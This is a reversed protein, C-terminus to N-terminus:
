LAGVNVIKLEGLQKVVKAWAAPDTKTSIPASLDGYFALINVRLETPMENYHGELKDLLQAYARDSLRYRGPAPIEGVDLNENPLKLQGAQEASLLERYRDLTTNFSAMFLKEVAPTPTEFRFARFRGVRPLIRMVSALLRSRFGPQQYEKGWNKQYSARSLNYLFKQRTTGPADKMIEDKKMDWAVRTMAPITSSVSHRYSGIALSVNTFLDGMKIGYTDLFARELAPRAVKFGIFEHYSNSAYHGQAVQLVDFAFETRIHSLSDDAYTVQNGFEVRLKPYLLSVAPNTALRHGTNDAAYHALAGLSFAYENVDQSERILNLVFDGSRVYHLLDTFLKSGFPYYGMDQIISGGYAYAHAEVLQEQTADPFRKLLLRKISTDWTSDIIAEHTLVSYSFASPATILALLGLSVACRCTWFIRM